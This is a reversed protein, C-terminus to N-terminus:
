IYMQLEMLTRESIDLSCLIINRAGPPFRTCQELNLRFQATYLVEQPAYVKQPCNKHYPKILTLVLVLPSVTMNTM